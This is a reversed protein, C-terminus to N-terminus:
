IGFLTVCTVVLRYLTTQLIPTYSINTFYTLKVLASVTTRFPPPPTAIQKDNVLFIDDDIEFFFFIFSIYIKRYVPPPSQGMGARTVQYYFIIILIPFQNSINILRSLLNISYLAATKLRNLDMARRIRFVM